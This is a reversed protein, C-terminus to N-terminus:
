GFVTALNEDVAMIYINYYSHISTSDGHRTPLVVTANSNGALIKTSSTTTLLEHTTILQLDTKTDVRFEVNTFKRSLCLAFTM